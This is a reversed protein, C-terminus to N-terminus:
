SSIGDKGGELETTKNKIEAARALFNYIKAEDNNELDVQLEKLEEIYKAILETLNKRNSIIIDQWLEASSGAIRTMDRYGSGSLEFFESNFDQEESLNV